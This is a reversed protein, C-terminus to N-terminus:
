LMNQFMLLLILITMMKQTLLKEKKLEEYIQHAMVYGRHDAGIFIKMIKMEMMIIFSKLRFFFRKPLKKM